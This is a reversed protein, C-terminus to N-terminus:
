ASLREPSLIPSVISHGAAGIATAVTGIHKPGVECCGGIITAGCAIWGLAFEAYRGPTIDERAQLVDVTNDNKLAAVSTFGNAYAGIPVPLNAITPLSADIAEPFSCNVLVAAAGETVVAEAAARLSEGSRLKTGDDDSVTFAIWADMGVEAVARAAAVAESTTSMTEVRFLSVCDKQLAVIERYQALCDEFPQTLEPQYSGTLPSLGGAIHVGSHGKAARQAIDLAAKQLPEFRDILGHRDLRPRTASYSNVVIVRAGAAIYDRHVAEVLEPQEAMVGSSWMPPTPGDFRHILEQGMGGDLLVIQAM